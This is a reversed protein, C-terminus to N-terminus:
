DGNLGERNIILGLAPHLELRYGGVVTVRGDPFLLPRCYRLAGSRRWGEPATQSLLQQVLGQRQISMSRGLLERVRQADPVQRLDVQAGDPGLRPESLSGSLCVVTVAPPSLRTLAQLSQHTEPDDDERPDAAFEWVHVDAFPSKIWRATAECLESVRAAELDRWTKLLEAEVAPGVPDTWRADPRYVRDILSQVDGPIAIEGRDRLALWSRLLIHRDYVAQTGGDFRPLGDSQQPPEIVYLTTSACAPPRPRPHRHLRGSRQLLLDLPAMDSLMLDFDVDLSQEIVQTAVLVSRRPRRGDRGFRNLVRLERQYRDGYPFRAHFLDLTPQGDEDSGAWRTRLAEFVSQARSVTNCIVAACGGDQLHDSLWDNVETESGGDDLWRIGLTRTSQDSASFTAASGTTTGSGARVRTMLPYGAELTVDSNREGLGRAYANALAARRATPLTASLLIVPSGLAAMWELLRELLSSMYTDYAHVEDIILARRLLGFLRVFVHRSQLAALLAQDVTGVGFPALLGRKRQLFWAGASLAPGDDDDEDIGVSTPVVTAAGGRKLLEFEASLSAHGHLLQVQLRGSQPQQRLFSLVRGFMQNSTAQTPLAFYFGARGSAEAWRHALYLAAETKGEGMPAEIIVLEPREAAVGEGVNVALAQLPRLASIHPFLHSFETRGGDTSWDFWGLTALAARASSRAVRLYQDSGPLPRSASIEAAYPFLHEDSGIWDAISLLAAVPLLKSPSAPEPRQATLDLLTALHEAVSFRAERWKSSGMARPDIRLASSTPLVGHHGGAVAALEHAADRSLAIQGSTLFERLALASVLGHPVRATPQEVGDWAEIATRLSAAERRLQFGPSLKGIDHVAGLYVLWSRAAALDLGLSDALAARIVDPFVQDWLAEVVAAVDLSHFILPHYSPPDRHVDLKAWFPPLSALPESSFAIAM